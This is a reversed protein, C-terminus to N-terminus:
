PSALAITSSSVKSLNLFNILEKWGKTAQSFKEKEPFEMGAQTYTSGDPIFIPDWQFKRDGRAKQAITGKTEGAFFYMKRGDCFGILSKAIANRSEGTQDEWTFIKENYKIFGNNEQNVTYPPTLLFWTM